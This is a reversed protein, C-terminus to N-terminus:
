VPRTGIRRWFFFAAGWFAVPGAIAVVTDGARVGIILTILGLLTCGAALGKRAGDSM